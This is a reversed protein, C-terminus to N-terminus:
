TNTQSLYPAVKAPPPNDLAPVFINAFELRCTVGPAHCNRRPVPANIRVGLALAPHQRVVNRSRGARRQREPNPNPRKRVPATRILRCPSRKRVPATRLQTGRVGVREGSSPPSPSPGRGRPRPVSPHRRRGGKWPPILPPPLPTAGPNIGPAADGMADPNIGPAAASRAPQDKVSRTVPTM